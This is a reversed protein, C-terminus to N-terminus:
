LSFLNSRIQLSTAASTPSFHCGIHLTCGRGLGRRLYLSDIKEIKFGERAFLNLM